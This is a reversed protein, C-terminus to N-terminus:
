DLYDSVEAVDELDEDDAGPAKLMFIVDLTNEHAVSYLPQL